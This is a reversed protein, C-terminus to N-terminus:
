VNFQIIKGTWPTEKQFPPSRFYGIAGEIECAVKLDGYKKKAEQLVKILESITYADSKVVNM